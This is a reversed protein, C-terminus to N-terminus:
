EYAKSGKYELAQSKQNDINVITKIQIYIEQFM